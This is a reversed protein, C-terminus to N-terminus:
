DGLASCTHIMVCCRAERLVWEPYIPSNRFCLVPFSTHFYAMSSAIDCTFLGM